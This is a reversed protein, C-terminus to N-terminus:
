FVWIEIQQAKEIIRTELIKTKYYENAGHALFNTTREFIISESIDVRVSLLDRKDDEAAWVDDAFLEVCVNM